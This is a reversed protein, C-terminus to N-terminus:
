AMPTILSMGAFHEKLIRELSKLSFDRLEKDNLNRSARLCSSIMMGNLSTYLTRDMFPSQRADEKLLKEKGNRILELFQGCMWRQEGQYDEAEM